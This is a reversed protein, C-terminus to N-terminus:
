WKLNHYESELFNHKMKYINLPLDVTGVEICDVGIYKWIRLPVFDGIKSVKIAFKINNYRSGDPLNM